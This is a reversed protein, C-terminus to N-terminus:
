LKARAARAMNQKFFAELQDCPIKEVDDYLDVHDADPLLDLDRLDSGAKYVNESYYRCQAKAGAVLVVPCPAILDMTAVMPLDFFAM